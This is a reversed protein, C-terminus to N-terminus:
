LRSVYQFLLICGITGLTGIMMWVITGLGPLYTMVEGLSSAGKYDAFLVVATVGLGIVVLYGVMSVLIKGTM